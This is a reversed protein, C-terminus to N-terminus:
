KPRLEMLKEKIADGAANGPCVHEFDRVLGGSFFEAVAQPGGIPHSDRFTKLRGMPGAFNDHSKRKSRMRWNCASRSALCRDILTPLTATM